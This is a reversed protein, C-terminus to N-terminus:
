EEPENILKYIRGLVGNVFKVGKEDDIEKTLEVAENISVSADIEDEYLMEYTCLRLVALSVRTLREFKWNVTSKRIYGDIEDLHACVGTFLKVTFDDFDTERAESALAIIEEPSQDKKFSYEFTLYLAERRADHRTM